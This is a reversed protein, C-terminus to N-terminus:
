MRLHSQSHLSRMSFTPQQYGYRPILLVQWASLIKHKHGPGELPPRVFAHAHSTPRGEQQSSSTPAGGRPRSRGSPGQEGVTPRRSVWM